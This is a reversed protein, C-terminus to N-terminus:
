HVYSQDNQMHMILEIEDQHENEYLKMIIMDHHSKEDWVQISDVWLNNINKLVIIVQVM